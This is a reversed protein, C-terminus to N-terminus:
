VGNVIFDPAENNLVKKINSLCKDLADHYVDVTSGAMHPTAVVTPLELLKDGAITPEIEYVDLGAGGIRKESIASYLEDQDVLGARSVNIIIM